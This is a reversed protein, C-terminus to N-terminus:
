TCRMCAYRMYVYVWPVHLSQAYVSHVYMFLVCVDQTFVHGTCIYGVGCLNNYVYVGHVLMGM